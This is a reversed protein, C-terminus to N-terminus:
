ANNHEHSKLASTPHRIIVLLRKCLYGPYGGYLTEFLEFVYCTLSCHFIELLNSQTAHRTFIHCSQCTDIVNSGNM